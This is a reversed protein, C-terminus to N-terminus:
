KGNINTVELIKRIFEDKTFKGAQIICAQRSIEIKDFKEIIKILSKTTQEEFFVGTQRDIITELAGGSKYSIIPVGFSQAEVSTIGFDESQTMILAKAKSYADVLDANSLRGVFNVYKKDAIKELNKKYKGEGVIILRQQLKVCANVALDIRKWKELRSVVMFYEPKSSRIRKEVNLDHFPYIIQSDRNWYKKIRNQITESNAILIDPLASVFRDWTRLMLLFPYIIPSLFISFYSRPEWVMRAPSNVYAIHFTDKGTRIGHAFRATSSIVLDYNRFDFLWFSLPYLFSLCKYLGTIHFVKNPAGVAIRLGPNHELLTKEWETSIISTYLDAKPFIEMLCQVLKEAGGKQVFDDHVIAIRKFQNM